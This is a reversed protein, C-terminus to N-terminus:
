KESDKDKKQFIKPLSMIRKLLTPKPQNILPEEKKEFSAHTGMTKQVPLRRDIKPKHTEIGTYPKSRGNNKDENNKKDSVPSIDSKSRHKRWTDDHSPSIYEKNKEVTKTFEDIKQGLEKMATPINSIEELKKGIEPTQELRKEFEAQMEKSKEVFIKNNEDIVKTLKDTQEVLHKQMENVSKETAERLNKLAVDLADQSDATDQAIEGKHRGYFEKIENMSENIGELVELRHMENNLKETFEDIKEIYSGFKEINDSCVEFRKLCITLAKLTRTNASSMAVVDMQRLESLIEEQSRYVENVQSLTDAMEDVKESFTTNFENLNRVMETIANSMNSPLAPLLKAQMWSLFDNKGKEEGRKSEKFKNTNRYTCSIGYVSALMAGAVGILLTNVGSAAGSGAKGAGNLLDVISGSLILAGLGVIVGAMTGCLGLYLPVPMQTSIEDELSDCNRNVADKLLGYDIIRRSNADLYGNISDKIRKFTDNDGGTIGIIQGTEPLDLIGYEGLFITAFEEMRRRNARYSSRQKVMVYIVIIGVIVLGSIEFLGM